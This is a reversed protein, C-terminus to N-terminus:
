DSVHSDDDICLRLETNDSLISEAKYQQILDFVYLSIDDFNKFVVIKRIYLNNTNAEQWTDREEVFCFPYETDCNFIAVIHLLLLSYSM